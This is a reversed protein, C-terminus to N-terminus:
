ILHTHIFAAAPALLLLLLTKNYYKHLTSISSTPENYLKARQAERSSSSPPSPLTKGHKKSGEELEGLVWMNSVVAGGLCTRATRLGM